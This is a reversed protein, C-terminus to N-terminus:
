AAENHLPWGPSRYHPYVGVNHCVSKVQETEHKGGRFDYPLLSCFLYTVLKTTKKSEDRRPSCQHAHGTATCPESFVKPLEKKAHQDKCQEHVGQLM